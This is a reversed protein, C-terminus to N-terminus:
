LGEVGDIARTESAHRLARLVAPLAEALDEALM